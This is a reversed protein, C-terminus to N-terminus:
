LMSLSSVDAAFQSIHVELVAVGEEVLTLIDALSRDMLEMKIWLADEVADLYLADMSLIQPHRLTKMLHLERELDVLKQSGSPLLAVQKIAVFSSKTTTSVVKASFVSGSEGEAIEQLDIFLKNPDATEDIFEKLPEVVTTVWGPYPHSPTTPTLSSASASWPVQDASTAIDNIVISPRGLAEDCERYTRITAPTIMALDEFQGAIPSPQPSSEVYPITSSQSNLLSTAKWKLSEALTLTQPRSGSSGSETGFTTTSMAVSSAESSNSDTSAPSTSRTEQEHSEEADERAAVTRPKVDGDKLPSKIVNARARKAVSVHRVITAPTVTMTSMSSDRNENDRSFNVQLEDHDIEESTAPSSTAGPTSLFLPSPSPSM